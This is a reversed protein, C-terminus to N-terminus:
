PTDCPAGSPTGTCDIFSTGTACDYFGCTTGTGDCTDFVSNRCLQFGCSRYFPASYGTGTAVCNSFISNGCDAVGSGEGNATVSIGTMTCLDFWSYGCNQFGFASSTTTTGNNYSTATCSYFTSGSCEGVGYPVFSSSTANETCECNDFSSNICGNFGGPASSIHSSNGDSTCSQFICSQCNYFAQTLESGTTTHTVAITKFVCGTCNALVRFISSGSTSTTIIVSSSDWPEIVLRLQYDNGASGTTAYDITGKVLVKVMPCSDPATAHTCITYICDDSFVTNLNTWPDDETGSGSEAGGGSVSDVWYTKCPAENDVRTIVGDAVTHSIWTVTGDASTPTGSCNCTSCYCARGRRGM